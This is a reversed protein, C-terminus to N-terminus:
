EPSGVVLPGRGGIAAHKAIERVTWVRDPDAITFAELASTQADQRSHRIGEDLGFKSFDSGTWGSRLVRAGEGSVYSRYDELKARAAESTAGTIVTMMTFILIEDPNRGIEAARKRIDAVIPAIVQKSPGNIFVCEAHTAAFKRGRSSAGAQYL